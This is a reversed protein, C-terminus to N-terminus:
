FPHGKVQVFLPFQSYVTPNNEYYGRILYKTYSVSKTSLVVDGSESMKALDPTDESELGSSEGLSEVKSLELVVKSCNDEIKEPLKFQSLLTAKAM